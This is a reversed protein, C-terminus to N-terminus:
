ASLIFDEPKLKFYDISCNGNGEFCISSVYDNAVRFSKTSLNLGAKAAPQNYNNDGDLVSFNNLDENLGIGAAKVVAEKRTWLVFFDDHAVKGTQLFQIENNNFTNELIMEWDFERIYEVDVGVERNALAIVLLDNSHAWNFFPMQYKFNEQLKLFPKDFRGKSFALEEVLLGPNCKALLLRCMVRSLLYRKADASHYFRNSKTYEEEKILLPFRHIFDSFRDVSFQFVQVDSIETKWSLNWKLNPETCCNVSAIM